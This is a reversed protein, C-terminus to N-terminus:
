AEEEAYAPVSFGIKCGAKLMKNDTRSLYIEGISGSGMTWSESYGLASLSGQTAGMPMTNNSGNGLARLVATCSVVKKADTEAKANYADILVAADDLLSTCVTVEQESFTRTTRAQVDEVTAYAM